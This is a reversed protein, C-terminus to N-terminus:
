RDQNFLDGPTATLVDRLDPDRVGAGADELKRLLSFTRAHAAQLVVGFTRPIVRITGEITEDQADPDVHTGLVFALIKTDKSVSRRLQRAYRTAQEKETHSITSGGRKLEVIVVRDFGSVEGREDHANRTYVGVSRELVVFDPRKHPTTPPAAGPAFFEHVITELRRNSMFDLSEFEPGFIWLGREFLPQLEHLEDARRDEGLMKELQKILDLRYKLESLVKRADSVTWEDLIEDLGDIDSPALSAMRELLSYGTRAKEMNAFLLVANALEKDSINPCQLQLEETFAAVQDQSVVPLNAIAHRNEELLVRKRERRLDKTLLRLDKFVYDYIERRAQNVAPNVHFGTWDPKVQPALVDAEVVYTFRKATATRADILTDTVGEWSPEGVLRKNVWWAVGNQKSTRGTHECDYRRLLFTGVGEVPVTFKTCLPDLEELKVERGNVQIKFGPDAVFRSGIMSRVDEESIRPAGTHCWIRTGHTTTPTEGTVHVNFPSTTSSGRSVRARIQRGDKRTEVHYERAFCFMAHRGIGNRGFATRKRRQSGEPFAVTEGQEHLRNYNLMTWRREFEARTMGTGNDEIALEADPQTPWTLKVTDAGADWCNAVLEIIAIGADEIVRGAHFSLFNEGYQLSM